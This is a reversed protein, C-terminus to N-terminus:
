RPQRKTGSSNSHDKVQTGPEAEIKQRNLQVDQGRDDPTVVAKERESLGSMFTEWDMKRAAKTGPDEQGDSLVDHLLYIEGGTEENVAVVEEM